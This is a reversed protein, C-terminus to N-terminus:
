GLGNGRVWRKRLALGGGDPSTKQKKKRFNIIEGGEERLYVM